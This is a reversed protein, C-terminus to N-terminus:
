CTGQVYVAYECAGQTETLQEKILAKCTEIDNMIFHMHVLRSIYPLSLVMSIFHVTLIM